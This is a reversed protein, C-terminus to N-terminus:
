LRRTVGRLPSTLKEWVTQEGTVIDASFQLGPRFRQTSESSPGQDAIHAKVLYVPERVDVPFLFERPDMVSDAVSTIQASFSGYTQYPYADYSIMVPTEKGVNALARSPLYLLAELKTDPDLLTVLPEGPDVVDGERLVFNSVIGDRTATITFSRQFHLEHQRARLKSIANDLVLHEEQALLPIILLQQEAEAMAQRHQEIALDGAKVQQQLQYLTSASQRFTRESITSARHLKDSAQFDQESLQVRLQRIGQEEKLLNLTNQMGLLQIRIKQLQADFRETLVVKRHKLQNLQTETQQLAQDPMRQGYQDHHTGALTALIDGASVIDGDKVAVDTVIGSKGGYVKVEGGNATLVGRVQQTQKIEATCIFALFGVFVLLLFSVMLRVTLPQYFIAEGFQAGQQAYLIETRFLKENM